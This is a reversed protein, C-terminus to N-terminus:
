LRFSESSNETEPPPLFIGTLLASLKEVHRALRMLLRFFIGPYRVHWHRQELDRGAEGMMGERIASHFYAIFVGSSLDESASRLMNEGYSQPVRGKRSSPRRM